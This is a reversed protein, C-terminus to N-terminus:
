KSAGSTAPAPTTAASTTTTVGTTAKTTTGTTAPKTGNDCGAVVFLGLCLVAATLYKKM